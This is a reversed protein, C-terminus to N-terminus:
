RFHAREPLSAPTMGLSRIVPDIVPGIVPRAFPHVRALMGEGPDTGQWADRQPTGVVDQDHHSGLEIDIVLPDHDSARYPLSADFLSADRGFDLNYDLADAEDANIHWIRTAIVQRALAPSALAYDLLGAQGDFVFSYPHSGSNAVLNIYGANTLLRIPDEQQYANLDGIILIDEDPHGTPHSTLWAQLARASDLRRANWYAQGDGQDCNPESAPDIDTGCRSGRKDLHSTGKSKFHNVAVTLVEGDSLERFSAALAARSSAPGNFIPGALDLAPLADDDLIAVADPSTLEVRKRCYILGVAIADDGIRRDGAPAVYEYGGTCHTPARNLAAVLDHITSKEAAPYDNELEVLGYIDADLQALSTVLKDRQRVYEAANDAGRCDAANNSPFCHGSDDALDNFFNLVNFSVVRLSAQRRPTSPRENVTKFVPEITPHLRYTADGFGGSGRSFRLVGILDQVRDGMRPANRSNLAPPPYRIPQPNQQLRGDDLVLTRRALAQLHAQYGARDPRQHSTYQFPRTGQVLRIEGFRDLNFLESVTMPHAIQLLMGEYRELDAIAKGNSNPITNSVPFRLPTPQIKGQGIVTVKAEPINANIQTEGFHETVRGIVRVRDGTQVNTSPQSGDYVFIGDSTAPNGDGQDQIFFGYLPGHTGREPGAQFDGTVVAELSVMTDVLPSNAGDGQVTPISSHSPNGGNGSDQKLNQKANFAGFSAQEPGKWSFDQSQTGTGTLQLSYGRPTNATETVGIDTSLTGDAAGGRARLVGEYSLFQEVDGNGNILAIGDPSGNQIGNSPYREVLVGYGNGLDPIIGTLNRVSYLNGNDGNYLLLSWGSLDTGAPGALEIAEGHDSSANDYHIENIFVTTASVQHSGFLSLVLVQLLQAPALPYSM